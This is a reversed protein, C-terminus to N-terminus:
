EFQEVAFHIYRSTFVHYLGFLDFGYRFIHEFRNFFRIGVLTFIVVSVCPKVCVKGLEAAFKGFNRYSTFVATFLPKAFLNGNVADVGFITKYFVERAKHYAAVYYAPRFLSKCLIGLPPFCM